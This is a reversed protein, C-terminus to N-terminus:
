RVQWLMAGYALAVSLMMTMQFRMTSNIRNLSRRIEVLEVEIREFRANTESKFQVFEGRLDAIESKLENRVDALETRVAAIETKLETRM